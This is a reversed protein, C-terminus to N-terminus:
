SGFIIYAILAVYLNHEDYMIMAKSEVGPKTQDGPSTEAFNDAIAAQKWVDENFKGDVKISQTVRPVHLTPKFQPTFEQAFISGCATVVYIGLCIM